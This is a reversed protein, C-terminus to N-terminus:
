LENEMWEQFLDERIFIKKGIRRVCKDLGNKEKHRLYWTISALSFPYRPDEAIEKRTLYKM